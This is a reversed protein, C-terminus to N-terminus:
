IKAERRVTFTGEYGFVEGLLPAENVFAIHVTDASVATHVVVPLGILKPPLPLTVPGLLLQWHTGVLKLTEPPEFDVRWGLRFMGMPGLQDVAAGSRADFVTSTTMRRPRFFQFRRRWIQTARGDRDERGEITLTVPVNRGTRGPLLGLAGLLRITPELWVWRVWIREMVGVLVAREGAGVLLQTRFVEPVEPALRAFAQTFPSDGPAQPRM